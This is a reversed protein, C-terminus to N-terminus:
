GSPKGSALMQFIERGIISSQNFCTLSGILLAPSTMFSAESTILLNGSKGIM